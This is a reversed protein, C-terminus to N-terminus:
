SFPASRSPSPAVVFRTLNSGHFILLVRPWSEIGRRGAVVFMSICYNIVALLHPVAIAPIDSGHYEQFFNTSCNTLPNRNPDCSCVFQGAATAKEECKGFNYCVRILADSSTQCTDNHLNPYETVGAMLLATRAQCLSQLVCDLTFAVSLLVLVRSSRPYLPSGACLIRKISAAGGALAKSVIFPSSGLPM